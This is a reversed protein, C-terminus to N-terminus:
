QRSAPLRSLMVATTTRRALSEPVPDGFDFRFTYHTTDASACSTGLTAIHAHHTNGVILIRGAFAVLPLANTSKYIVVDGIQM